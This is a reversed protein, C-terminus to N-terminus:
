DTIVHSYANRIGEILAAEKATGSNILETSSLSWDYNNVQFKGRARGLSILSLAITYQTLFDLADPYNELIGIQDITLIPVYELTINTSPPYGPDVHLLQRSKDFDYTCNDKFTGALRSVLIRENYMMSINSITDTFNNMSERGSRIAWGLPVGSIDSTNTLVENGGRSKLIDTIYSIRFMFNSTDVACFNTSQVGSTTTLILPVSVWLTLLSYKAMVTLARAISLEIVKDPLEVDVMPYGFEYKVSDKIHTLVKHQQEENVIIPGM